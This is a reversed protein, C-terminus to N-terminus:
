KKIKEYDYFFLGYALGLLSQYNHIVRSILLVSLPNPNMVFPYNVVSLSQYTHICVVVNAMLFPPSEIHSECKIKGSFIYFGHIRERKERFVLEVGLTLNM